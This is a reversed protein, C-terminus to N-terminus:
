RQVRQQKPKHGQQQSQKQQSQHQADRRARAVEDFSELLSRYMLVNRIAASIAATLIEGTRASASVGPNPFIRVVGLTKNRLVLPLCLLPRPSSGEPTDVVPDFRPDSEPADTAILHGTQCVAGTLGRDTPLRGPEAHSALECQAELLLEKGSADLLYLSVPAAPVSEAVARLVAAILRAPEIEATLADCIRRALEADSREAAALGDQRDANADGSPRALVPGLALSLVRLLSLDEERFPEDGSRDTACLVGLPRGASRVPALALSRTRYRDGTATKGFREDLELDGVVLAHEDALVAGAIGEGLPVSDMDSPLLDRGTTAVVKLERGDDELLMLSTKSAGLVEAVADAARQHISAAADPNPDPDALHALETELAALRKRLVEGRAQVRYGARARQVALVLEEEHLPKALYDCAGLRLASLILGQDTHASVMIVRLMPREALLQELVEVGSIGPLSIDLVVVGIDTARGAELAQEGTTAITCGISAAALADCVQERFFKEDDVVLVRPAAEDTPRRASM